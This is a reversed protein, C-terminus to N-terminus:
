KHRIFKESIILNTLTAGWGEMVNKFFTFPQRASSIITNSYKSSSGRQMYYFLKKKNKM